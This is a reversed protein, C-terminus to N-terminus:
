KIVLWTSLLLNVLLPCPFYFFGHPSYFYAVHLCLPQRASSIFMFSALPSTHPSLPTSMCPVICAFSAISHLVYVYLPQCAPSLPFLHLLPTFKLLSCISVFPMILLPLPCVPLLPTFYTSVSPCHFHLFCHLLTCIPVSPNVLLACHCYVLCHFILNTLSYKM